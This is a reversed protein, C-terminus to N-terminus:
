CKYILDNQCSDVFRTTKIFIQHKRLSNNQTGLYFKPVAAKSYLKSVEIYLHTNVNRYYNCLM